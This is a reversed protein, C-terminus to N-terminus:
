CFGVSFWETGLRGQFSREELVHGANWADKVTDTGVDTQVRVAVDLRFIICV